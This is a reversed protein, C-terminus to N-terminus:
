LQLSYKDNVQDLDIEDGINSEYNGKKESSLIIERRTGRKKVAMAKVKRKKM